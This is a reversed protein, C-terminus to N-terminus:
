NREYLKLFDDYNIGKTCICRLTQTHIEHELLNHMTKISKM